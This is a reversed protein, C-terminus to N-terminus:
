ANLVSINSDFTLYNGPFESDLVSSTMEARRLLGGDPFNSAGFEQLRIVVGRAADGNPERPHRFNAVVLSPLLCGVKGAEFHKELFGFLVRIDKATIRFLVRRCLLSFRIRAVIITSIDFLHFNM